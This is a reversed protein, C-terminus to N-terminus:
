LKFGEEVMGGHMTDRLLGIPYTSEDIDITDYSDRDKKRIYLPIDYPHHGRWFKIFGNKKLVDRLIDGVEKATKKPICKGGIREYGQPCGTRKM